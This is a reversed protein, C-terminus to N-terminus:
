ETAKKIAAKAKELLDFREVRELSMSGIILDLVEILDPSAAILKANAEMEEYNAGSIRNCVKVQSPMAVIQDSGSVMWIGKTHTM